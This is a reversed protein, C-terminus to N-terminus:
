MCNFGFAHLQAFTEGNKLFPTIDTTQNDGFFAVDSYRMFCGADIARGNTNPRAICSHINENAVQLCDKCDNQTATEVCQAIGYVTAGGGRAM